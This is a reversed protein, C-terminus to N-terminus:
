RASGDLLNDHTWRVLKQAQAPDLHDKMLFFHRLTARQLEGQATQLRRLADEVSDAKAGETGIATALLAAAEQIEHRLRAREKEYNAEFPKLALHQSPSMALNAHLWDHFSSESPQALPHRVVRWAATVAVLITIVSWIITRPAVNM